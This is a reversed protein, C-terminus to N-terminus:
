EEVVEITTHFAEKSYPTTGGQHTAGVPVREQTVKVKAKKFIDCFIDWAAEKDAKEKRCKDQYDCAKDFDQLLMAKLVGQAMPLIKTDQVTKASWDDNWAVIRQVNDAFHVNVQATAHVFPNAAKYEDDHADWADKRAQYEDKSIVQNNLWLTTEGIFMKTEITKIENAM